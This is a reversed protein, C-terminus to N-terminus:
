RKSGKKLWRECEPCQFVLTADFMPPVGEIHVNVPPKWGCPCTPRTLPLVKPAMHRLADPRPSSHAHVGDDFDKTM